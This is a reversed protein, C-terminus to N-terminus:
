NVVSKLNQFGSIISLCSHMGTPHTGDEATAAQPTDARPHRILPHLGGRVWHVGDTPLCEWLGLPLCGWVWLCVGGGTSLIRSVRKHFCLREAVVTAVTFFSLTTQNFCVSSDPERDMEENNTICM